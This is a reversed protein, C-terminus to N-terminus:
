SDSKPLFGELTHDRRYFPGMGGASGCLQLVIEQVRYGVSTFHIQALKTQRDEAELDRNLTGWLVYLTHQLATLYAYVQTPDELQLDRVLNNTHDHMALFCAAPGEGYKELIERAHRDTESAVQTLRTELAAQWDAKTPQNTM